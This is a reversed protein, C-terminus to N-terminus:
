ADLRWTLTFLLEVAANELNLLGLGLQPSSLLVNM